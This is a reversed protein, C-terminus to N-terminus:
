KITLQGPSEGAVRNQRPHSGHGGADTSAEEGPQRWRAGRTCRTYINDRATHSWGFISLSVCENSSNLLPAFASNSSQTPEYLEWQFLERTEWWWGEKNSGVKEDTLPSDPTFIDPSVNSVFWEGRHWTANDRSGPIPRPANSHCVPVIFIKHRLNLLYYYVGRRTIMLPQVFLIQHQDRTYDTDHHGAWAASILVRVKTQLFHPLGPLRAETSLAPM